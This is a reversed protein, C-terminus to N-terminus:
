PDIVRGFYRATLEFSKKCLVLIGDHPVPGYQWWSSQCQATIPQVIQVAPGLIPPHTDRRLSLCNVKLVAVIARLCM